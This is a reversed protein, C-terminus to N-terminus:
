SIFYVEKEDKGVVVTWVMRMKCDELDRYIFSCSVLFVFYIPNYHLLILIGIMLLHDKRQDCILSLIKKYRDICCYVSELSDKRM